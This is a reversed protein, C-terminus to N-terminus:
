GGLALLFNVAWSRADFAEIILNKKSGKKAGLFNEPSPGSGFKGSKKVYVYLCPIESKKEATGSVRQQSPCWLNVM